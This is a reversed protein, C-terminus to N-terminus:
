CILRGGTQGETEGGTFHLSSHLFKPEKTDHPLVMILNWPGEGM